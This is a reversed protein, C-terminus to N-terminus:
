GEGAALIADLVSEKMGPVLLLEEVDAFPGHEERYAVINAAIAKGVGPLEALERADASNVDIRKVVQVWVAGDREEAPDPGPLTFAPETQRAAGSRPLFALALAFFVATLALLLKETKTM